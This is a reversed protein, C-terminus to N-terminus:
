PADCGSRAASTAQRASQVGGGRLGTLKMAPILPSTGECTAMKAPDSISNRQSAAVDDHYAAASAAPQRPKRGQFKGRARIKRPSTPDPANPNKTGSTAM